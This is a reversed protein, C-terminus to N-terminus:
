ACRSYTSVGWRSRMMAREMELPEAALLRELAEDVCESAPEYVLAVEVSDEVRGLGGTVGAWSKVKEEGTM